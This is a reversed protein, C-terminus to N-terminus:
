KFINKIQILFSGHKTFASSVENLLIEEINYKSFDSSDEHLGIAKSKQMM